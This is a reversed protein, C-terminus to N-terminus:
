VVAGAGLFCYKKFCGRSEQGFDVGLVQRLMNGSLPFFINPNQICAGCVSVARYDDNHGFYM